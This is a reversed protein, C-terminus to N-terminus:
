GRDENPAECEVWGDVCPAREPNVGEPEAEWDLDGVYYAVTLDSRDTVRKYATGNHGYCYAVEVIQGRDQGRVYWRM